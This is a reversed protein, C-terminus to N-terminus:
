VRGTAFAAGISGIGIVAWLIAWYRMPVFFMTHRQRLVVDQGTAKDVLERVPRAALLQALVFVIVASIILALGNIVQVHERMALEGGAIQTVLQFVLITMFPIVFAFAGLGQWILM